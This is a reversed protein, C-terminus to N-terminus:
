YPSNMVQALASESIANEAPRAVPISFIFVAGGSPHNYVWINGNHAKIVESCIALGLGTGGSGDSNNRAQVFKEFINDLDELPIGKGEDKIEVTSAGDVERVRISITGGKPSFKIANALINRIVQMIRKRDMWLESDSAETINIKLQNDHFLMRFEEIVAVIAPFLKQTEFEFSTKGAELKALDLLDNLLVLLQNGSTNIKEFYSHLKEPDSSKFKKM